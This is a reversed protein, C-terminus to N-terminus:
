KNVILSTTSIFTNLPCDCTLSLYSHVKGCRPCIWGEKHETHNTGSEYQCIGCIIWGSVTIYSKGIEIPRGCKDCHLTSNGTSM